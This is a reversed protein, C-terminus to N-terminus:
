SGELPGDDDKRKPKVLKGLSESFRAEDADPELERAAKKFKDLQDTKRSSVMKGGCM